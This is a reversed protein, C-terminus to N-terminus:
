TSTFLNLYYRFGGQLERIDDWLGSTCEIFLFPICVNLGLPSPPVWTLGHYKLTSTYDSRYMLVYTQVRPPLCRVLSSDKERALETKFVHSQTREEQV